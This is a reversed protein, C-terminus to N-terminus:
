GPGTSTRSRTSSSARAPRGGTRATRPVGAGRGRDSRRRARHRRLGGGQAGGDAPARHGQARLRDPRAAPGGARVRARGVVRADAQRAPRPDRQARRRPLRDARPRARRLRRPHHRRRVAGRVERHARVPVPARAPPPPRVQEEHVHPDPVDAAAPRADRPDRLRARLARLVARGQAQSGAPGDGPAVGRRPHGRPVPLVQRGQVPHQLPAPPAQHPQVRPVAGRGRQPGRDMRGHRVGAGDPPDAADALRAPRLLEVAPEPPEQGQRRVARPRPRGQVPLVRPRRPDHERRPPAEDTWWEGLSTGAGVREGATIISPPRGPIGAM